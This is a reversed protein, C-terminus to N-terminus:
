DDEEAPPLNFAPAFRGGGIETSDPYGLQEIAYHPYPMDGFFETATEQNHAYWGDDVNEYIANILNIILNDTCPKCCSNVAQLCKVV